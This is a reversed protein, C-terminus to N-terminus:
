ETIFKSLLAVVEQDPNNNYTKYIQVIQYNKRKLQVEVTYRDGNNHKYDFIFAKGHMVLNYYAAVCNHQEQGENVLQRYTLLPTIALESERIKELLFKWKNQNNCLPKNPNVGIQQHWWKLNVKEIMEQELKHLRNTSRINCPLPKVKLIKFQEYIDELSSIIQSVIFQENNPKVNKIIQRYLYALYFSVFQRNVNNNHWIIKNFIAYYNKRNGLFDNYIRYFDKEAVKPELNMFNINEWLSLKNYNIKRELYRHKQKYHNKLLDFHKSSGITLVESYTFPVKFPNYDFTTETSSTLYRKVSNEKERYLDNALRLEPYGQLIHEGNEKTFDISRSVPLDCYGSKTETKVVGNPFWIISPQNSSIAFQPGDSIFSVKHNKIAIYSNYGNFVFTIQILWFPSTSIAIKNVIEKNNRSNFYTILERFQVNLFDEAEKNRLIKKNRPDYFFVYNVDNEYLEDVISNGDYSNLPKIGSYQSYLVSNLLSGNSPEKIFKDQQNLWTGVNDLKERIEDKGLSEVM